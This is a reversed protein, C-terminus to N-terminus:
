FIIELQYSRVFPTAMEDYHFHSFDCLRASVKTYVEYRDINISVAPTVLDNKLVARIIM